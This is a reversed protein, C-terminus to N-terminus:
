TSHPMVSFQSASLSQRVISPFHLWGTYVLTKGVGSPTFNRALVTWKKPATRDKRPRSISHLLKLHLQSNGVPIKSTFCTLLPPTVLM